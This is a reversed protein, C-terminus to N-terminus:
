SAASGDFKTSGGAETQENIDIVRLAPTTWPQKDNPQAPSQAQISETSARPDLSLKDNM